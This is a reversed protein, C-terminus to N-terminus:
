LGLVAGAVADRAPTPKPSTVLLWAVFLCAAVLNHVMMVSAYPFVLTGFAFAGALLLAESVESGTRRFYWYIAVSLIAGPVASAWITVLYLTRRFAQKDDLSVGRARQVKEVIFYMPSAFLALGPPKNSYVRDGVVTVDMTNDAYPTIEFSGREVIARTTDFHSFQNFGDGAFFWAYVFLCLLFLCAGARRDPHSPVVIPM